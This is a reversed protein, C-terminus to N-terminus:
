NTGFITQLFQRRTMPEEVSQYAAMFDLAEQMTPFQKIVDVYPGDLVDVIFELGDDESIALNFRNGNVTLLENHIQKTM